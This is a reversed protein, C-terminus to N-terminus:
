HAISNGNKPDKGQRQDNVNRQGGAQRFSFASMEGRIHDRLVSSLLGIKEKLMPQSEFSAFVYAMAGTPDGAGDEGLRRLVRFAGATLLGNAILQGAVEALIYMRESNTKGSAKGVAPFVADVVSGALIGVGAQSVTHLITRAITM